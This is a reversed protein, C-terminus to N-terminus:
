NKCKDHYQRKSRAAVRDTVPKFLELGIWWHHFFLFKRYVKDCTLANTDRGLSNLFASKNCLGFIGILFAIEKFIPVLIAFMGLNPVKIGVRYCFIGNNISFPILVGVGTTSSSACLLSDTLNATVRVACNEGVGATLSSTSRGSLALNAACGVTLRETVVNHCKFALSRGTCFCTESFACVAGSTICLNLLFHDGSETVSGNNVLCNSRSACLCTKCFARVARNAVLNEYSLFYNVSETVCEAFPDNVNLGSDLRCARLVALASAALDLCFSNGSKIMSVGVCGLNSGLCSALCVAYSCKSTGAAVGVCFHDGSGTVGLALNNNFVLNSSSTCCFARVIVYNVANFTILLEGSLSNSCISKTVLVLVAVELAISAGLNKKGLSIGSKCNFLSLSNCIEECVVSVCCILIVNSALDLINVISLVTVDIDYAGVEYDVTKVASVTLDSVVCHRVLRCYAILDSNVTNDTLVVGCKLHLVTPENIENSVLMVEGFSGALCECGTRDTACGCALKGIVIVNVTSAGNAALYFACNNGLDSKLKTSVALSLMRVTSVGILILCVCFSKITICKGYCAGRLHVCACSIVLTVGAQLETCGGLGTIHGECNGVVYNLNYDVNGTVLSSGCCIDLNVTCSVGNLCSGIVTFVGSDFNVSCCCLSNCEFSNSVSCHNVGDYESKACGLGLALM